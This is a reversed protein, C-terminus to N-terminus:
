WSAAIRLDRRSRAGKRRPALIEAVSGTTIAEQCFWTAPLSRQGYVPRRALGELWASFPTLERAVVEIGMRSGSDNAPHNM